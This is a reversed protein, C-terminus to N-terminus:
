IFRNTVPCFIRKSYHGTPRGNMRIPASIEFTGDERAYVKFDKLTQGFFKMSSRTFYHSDGRLRAKIEYITPKKTSQM